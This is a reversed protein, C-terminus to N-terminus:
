VHYVRLLSFAYHENTTTTTTTTTSPLDRSVQILLVGHSARTATPATDIESQATQMPTGSSFALRPPFTPSLEPREWYYAAYGCTRSLIVM